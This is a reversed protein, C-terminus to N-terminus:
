PKMKKKSNAPSEPTCQQADESLGPLDQQPPKKKEQSKKKLFLLSRYVNELVTGANRDPM